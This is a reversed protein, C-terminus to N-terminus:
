QGSEYKKEQAVLVPRVAEKWIEYGSRVMHLNDKKFIDPRPTGDEGIMGTAVDIYFLRKDKQCLAEILANAEQMKPWMHWRSVSPKICIFYIRCDPLAAHVKNVFAQYTRTIKEPTIGQAIDNDGEYLLVARPNYPIVIRDVFHLADNMNSGGFGRPIITLPSLDEHIMQHWGRMSSSGIGVIANKPPKQEKDGAEFKAIANEFRDPNRYKKEEEDESLASTSMACIILLLLALTQQIKKM